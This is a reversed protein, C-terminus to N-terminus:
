GFFLLESSFAANKIKILMRSNVNRISWNETNKVCVSIAEMMWKEEFNQVNETPYVELLLSIVIEM